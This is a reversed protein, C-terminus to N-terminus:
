SELYRLKTNENKQMGAEQASERAEALKHQKERVGALGLLVGGRLHVPNQRAADIPWPPVMQLIVLTQDLLSPIFM